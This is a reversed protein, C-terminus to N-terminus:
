GNKRYRVNTGERGIQRIKGEKELEDLYNTVTADSVALSAQVENNTIEQQSSFMAMIKTKAEAKAEQREENMKLMGGKKWNRGILLGVVIGIVLYITLSLM